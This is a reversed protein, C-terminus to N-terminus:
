DGDFGLEPPLPALHGALHQLLSGLSSLASIYGKLLFSSGSPIPPFRHPNPFSGGGVSPQVPLLDGELVSLWENLPAKKAVADRLIQQRPHLPSDSRLSPSVGGDHSVFIWSQALHKVSFAGPRQQGTVDQQIKLKRLM